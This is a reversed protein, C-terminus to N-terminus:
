VSMFLQELQSVVACIQMIIKNRYYMKSFFYLYILITLAIYFDKYDM